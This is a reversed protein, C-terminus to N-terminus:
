LLPPPPQVYPVTMDIRAAIRFSLGNLRAGESSSRGIQIVAHLGPQPRRRTSDTHETGDRRSGSMSFANTIVRWYAREINHTCPLSATDHRALTGSRISSRCRIVLMPAM